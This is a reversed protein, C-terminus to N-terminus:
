ARQKSAHHFTRAPKHDEYTDEEEEEGDDPDDTDDEEDGSSKTIEDRSRKHIVPTARLFNDDHDIVQAEHYKRGTQAQLDTACCGFHRCDGCRFQLTAYTTITV